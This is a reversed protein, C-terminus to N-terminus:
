GHPGIDQPVSSRLKAWKVRGNDEGVKHGQEGGFALIDIYRLPLRKGNEETQFCCQCSATTLLFHHCILSLVLDLQQGAWLVARLGDQEVWFLNKPCLIRLAFFVWFMLAFFLLKSSFNIENQLMCKFLFLHSFMRGSAKARLFWLSSPSLFPGKVMAKSPVEAFNGTTFFQNSCLFHHALFSNDSLYCFFNIHFLLKYLVIFIFTDTHSLGPTICYSM